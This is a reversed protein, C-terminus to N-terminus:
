DTFALYGMAALNALPIVVLVGLWGPKNRALAIKYWIFGTLGLSILPGIFPIFALLLALLWLYNVSAIKCMLFVNAVPIWALWAPEQATKKAIAQLCICSYVYFLFGIFCLIAIIGFAAGAAIATAKKDKGVAETFSKLKEVAAAPSTDVAAEEQAPAAPAAVVTKKEPLVIKEGNIEAIEDLFYSFEASYADIKVLENNRSLIKCDIQTGNKLIIKDKSNQTVPVAPILHNESTIVPAAEQPLLITQNGSIDAAAEQAYTQQLPCNIAFVTVLYIAAFFYFLRKM